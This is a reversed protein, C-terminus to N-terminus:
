DRAHEALAEVVARPMSVAHRGATKPPKVVGKGAERDAQETVQIKRGLMDVNEWRLALMDGARLGCLCGVFVFARFRADISQALKVLENGDIFRM